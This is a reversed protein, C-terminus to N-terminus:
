PSGIVRLNALSTKALFMETSGLLALVDDTVKSKSLGPQVLVVELILEYTRLMKILESLMRLSGKEFRNASVEEWKSQRRQVHTYIKKFSDHKWKICKIAQGCLEYLDGVRAGSKAATSFKCHFLTLLVKNQDPIVKLAIIDAAEGPSDDDIIIQYDNYITEIVKHQVTNADKGKGQSERTVDVGNWDNVEIFEANFLNKYPEILSHNNNISITGDIYTITVPDNILYTSLAENVVNGYKVYVENGEILRYEFGNTDIILQYKSFRDEAKVFFIIKNSENQHDLSLDIEYLPIDQNNIVMFVAEENKTIVKDGSRFLTP